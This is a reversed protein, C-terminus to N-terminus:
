FGSLGPLGLRIIFHVLAGIRNRKEKNKKAIISKEFDHSKNVVVFCFADSSFFSAEMWLARARAMKLNLQKESKIILRLFLLSIEHSSYHLSM